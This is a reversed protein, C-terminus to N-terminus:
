SCRSTRSTFRPTRPSFSLGHLRASALADPVDPRQMFGYRAVVRYFGHALRHVEIATAPEVTPVDLISVTLLVVQEHLVKNHKLHHVLIPPAGQPRGTMFVGTGSVRVPPQAALRAFFTEIPIESEDLRKAVFQRGTKWTSMVTYVAAAVLLPFWGGHQIKILNAGFFALDISLFAATVLGARWASWRWRERAVVYALLTTIVMTTTVAMGYAAALNTSSRFGFVLGVTAIMLLWNVEPIYVQGKEHESTHHVDFRPSYGLQVAQQTLSFAGSIVAQSAIVAAITAVVVLPYVGWDPALGYFPNQQAEPHSLLLAGQGLYNIVLAPLVIAFWATRIPARGFHGMDAYLAEAGTVALFVAGLTLFARLGHASFFTVAHVPSFSSLVIPNSFIQPLGAIAITVFWVIMIPGFVKGIGGTGRHQFLFLGVLIVVTISVVFPEFVDTAVRLGEVASLVSIAPTIMGDGYLLAAGFLGIAVLAAHLPEGAKSRLLAVLALIGGEGGNDARMVFLLYKVSVTLILSWFILSLVGLVNASTVPISHTGAFCERLAYLPSTGIDGFVIGLASLILLSARSRGRGEVREPRPSGTSGREGM